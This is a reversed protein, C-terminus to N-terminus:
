LDVHVGSLDPCLAPLLQLEASGRSRIPLGSKRDAQVASSDNEHRVRGSIWISHLRILIPDPDLILLPDTFEPRVEAECLVLSLHILRRRFASVRRDPSLDLHHRFLVAM